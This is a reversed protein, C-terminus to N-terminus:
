FYLQFFLFIKKIIKIHQLIAFLKNLEKIWDLVKEINNINESNLIKLSKKLNTTSINPTRPLYIVNCLKKLEDFKWEWDNWIVFTNIWYKKIDDKKQEWNNESIVEDVYKISELLYKREEYSYFSKKNKINNFEDSSLWVILYDWLEKARKLINIHWIHLLDFTWYTLIKKM